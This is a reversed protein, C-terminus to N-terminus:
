LWIHPLIVVVNFGLICICIHVNNRKYQLKSFFSVFVDESASSNAKNVLFLICLICGMM